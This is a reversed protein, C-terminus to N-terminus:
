LIGSNPFLKVKLCRLRSYIEDWDVYGGILKRTNNPKDEYKNRGHLLRINDFVLIDGEKTKFKAAFEQNLDFFLKHAKYWPVVVNLLGPFHNGRQPISCNIRTVEKNSDLCIVPSRYLKFFENGDEVGIDSWEVEINTLIEYEEPYNEKMYQATYHCDSLLNEGGESKTQVLCHLMNVGPCYEYYPLDTHMQLNSSLYAVNSTNAVNQVTFKVGYHTQKSFGVRAIINDIANEKNPTNQILAVGYVSVDYLWEYLAEDSQVIKNYDHIGCIKLFEKGHWSTRKPRYIFDTYKNQSEATFSRLKLWDLKFNSTHGDDWTIQVSNAGKVVAKPKSDINFNSYDIIRSRASTHFCQECQCNDRLWVHPFKLHEGDIDISIVHHTSRKTVDNINHTKIFQKVSQFRKLVNM